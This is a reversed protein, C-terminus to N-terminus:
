SEEILYEDPFEWQHGCSGCMLRMNEKIGQSVDESMPDIVIIDHDIRIINYYVDTQEVYLLKDHGCRPCNM